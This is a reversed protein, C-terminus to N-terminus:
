GSEDGRAVDQNLREGTGRRVCDRTRAGASRREFGDAPKGIVGDGVGAEALHELHLTAEGVRLSDVALGNASERIVLYGAVPEPVNEAIQSLEVLRFVHVQLCEGSLGTITMRIRSEALDFALAACTRDIFDGLVDVGIDRAVVDGDPL